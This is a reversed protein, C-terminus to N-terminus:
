WPVRAGRRFPERSIRRTRWLPQVGILRSRATRAAGEAAHDSGTAPGSLFEDRSLMCPAFVVTGDEVSVGLELFRNIIDEKVQGTMGPQQVGAFGPTHSYPDVPFAGYHAPTKNMGLGERVQRYHEYLRAFLEPEAGVRAATALAEGIALALKSVMHWYICGLGEYKYMAGSRGTFQRHRFVEEYLGCLADAAAPAIAPDAELASRLRGANAFVAAFRVRGAVDQVVYRGLGSALEAQVWENGELLDPAIVNKEVFGPLRRDPYLMFSNQDPRYLRSTRLADLLNLTQRSDLCGSGLVAVQGELMEQLGDVAYGRDNFHILNYSHFLGDARLNSGITDDLYALSLEIFALVEVRGLM